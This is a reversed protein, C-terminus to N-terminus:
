IYPNEMELSKLYSYIKNRFSHIEEMDAELRRGGGETQQKSVCASTM